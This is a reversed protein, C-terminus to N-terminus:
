PIKARAAARAASARGGDCSMGRTACKMEEFTLADGRRLRVDTRMEDRAKLGCGDHCKVLAVGSQEPITATVSELPLARTELAAHRSRQRGRKQKDSARQQAVAAATSQARRRGASPNVHTLTKGERKGSCWERVRAQLTGALAEAGAALRGESTDPMAHAFSRTSCRTRKVQIGGRVIKDCRTVPLPLPITTSNKSRLPKGIDIICLTASAPVSPHKLLPIVASNHACALPLLADANGFYFLM